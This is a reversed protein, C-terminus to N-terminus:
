VSRGLGAFLERVELVREGTPAVEVQLGKFQPMGCGGTDPGVLANAWPGMPIFVLGSPLGDDKRAKLVTHGFDSTVVVNGDDPLELTRFDEESISCFAVEKPFVPSMKAECCAGQGLTRGSIM